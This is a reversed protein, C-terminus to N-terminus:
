ERLACGPATRPDSAGRAAAISHLVAAVRNRATLWVVVIVEVQFGHAAERGDMTGRKEEDAPISPTTKAEIADSADLTRSTCPACRLGTLNVCTCRHLVPAFSVNHSALLVRTPQTISHAPRLHNWAPSGRAKARRASM